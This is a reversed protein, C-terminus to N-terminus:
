GRMEAVITPWGGPNISTHFADRINRANLAIQFTREAVSNHALTPRDGRYNGTGSQRSEGGL